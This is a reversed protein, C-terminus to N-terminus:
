DLFAGSPSVTTALVVDAVLQDVTGEAGSATANTDAERSGTAPRM